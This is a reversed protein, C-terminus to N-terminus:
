GFYQQATLAAQQPSDFSGLYTVEATDLYGLHLDIEGAQDDASISLVRNDDLWHLLQFGVVKWTTM